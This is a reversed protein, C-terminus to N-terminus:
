HLWIICELKWHTYPNQDSYLSICQNSNQIHYLIRRRFAVDINKEFNTAFVCIGEDKFPLFDNVTYDDSPINYAGPISSDKYEKPTRVDFLQIEEQKELIQKLQAPEIETVKTSETGQELPKKGEKQTQQCNAALIGIMLIPFLLVRKM